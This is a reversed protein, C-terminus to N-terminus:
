GRYLQHMSSLPWSLKQQKLVQPQQRWQEYQTLWKHLVIIYHPSSFRRLSCSFTCGAPVRYHPHLSLNGLLASHFACSPSFLCISCQFRHWIKVKPAKSFELRNNPTWIIQLPFKFPTVKNRRIVKNNQFLATQKFACHKLSAVARLLYKVTDSKSVNNKVKFM